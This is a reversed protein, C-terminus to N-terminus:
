MDRQTLTLLSKLSRATPKQGRFSCTIGGGREPPVRFLHLGECSDPSEPVFHCPHAFNQPGAGHVTLGVQM